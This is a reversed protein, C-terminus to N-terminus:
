PVAAPMSCSGDVDAFRVEARKAGVGLASPAGENM